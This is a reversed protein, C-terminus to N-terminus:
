KLIASCEEIETFSSPEDSLYKLAHSSLLPLRVNLLLDKSFKPREKTNYSIWNNATNAIELESTTHLQSGGLIKAVLNFNLENFYKTEAVITFCREIFSFTTEALSYFNIIEFFQYM